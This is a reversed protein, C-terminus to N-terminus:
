LLKELILADEYHDEKWLWDHRTGVVAFGNRQLAKLCAMNNVSVNTYLQHLRLERRCYDILAATLATGHGQGRRTSDILIGYGARLHYPDFDYLDACGVATNDVTGILRLQRTAYIDSGTASLLYQTLSHRSYHQHTASHEWVAPDNEWRYITDIDEPELARLIVNNM